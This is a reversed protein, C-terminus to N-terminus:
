DTIAWQPFNLKLIKNEAIPKWGELLKAAIHFTNNILNDGARLFDDELEYVNCLYPSDTTAQIIVARNVQINNRILAERYFAMQLHYAYRIISSTFDRAYIENATKLEILTGDTTVADVRAKCLTSNVDFTLDIETKAKSLLECAAPHDLVSQAILKAESLTAERVIERTGAQEKYKEVREGKGIVFYKEDHAHPELVLSHVLRGLSLASTDSQEGHLYQYGHMPSKLCEKLLSANVAKLSRYNVKNSM